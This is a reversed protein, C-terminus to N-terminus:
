SWPEPSTSSATSRAGRRDRVRIQILKESATSRGGPARSGIAAQALAEPSPRIWPFRAALEDDSATVVDPIPLLSNDPQVRFPGQLRDRTPRCEPHPQRVARNGSARAHRAAAVECAGRYPALLDGVESLASAHCRGCLAKLDCDRCGHLDRWSLRRFFAAAESREVVSRLDAGPADGIEISLNSCPVLRGDSRLAIGSAGAGCPAQDVREARPRAPPACEDTSGGPDLAAIRQADPRTSLPHLTGGEGAAIHDGVALECDLSRALGLMRDGTITSMRTLTTKLVVRLGADRLSRVGDVTRQWSGPVRTVADHEAAVDSYLSVHVQWVRCEALRSALEPTVLYANTYLVTALGLDHAATLLEVLDQRLTPEGGSIGLVLGGADRFRCFVDVLEDSSLEGKLGQVQYCHSCSHNCRDAVLVHLMGLGGISRSLRSLVSAATEAGSM